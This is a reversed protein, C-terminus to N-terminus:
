GKCNKRFFDQVVPDSSREYKLLFDAINESENYDFVGDEMMSEIIRDKVEKSRKKQNLNVLYLGNRKAVSLINEVEELTIPM